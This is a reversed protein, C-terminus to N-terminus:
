KAKFMEWGAYDVVSKHTMVWGRATMRCIYQIKRDKTSYILVKQGNWKEIKGRIVIRIRDYAKIEAKIGSITLRKTTRM